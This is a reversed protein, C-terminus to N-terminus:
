SVKIAQKHFGAKRLVRHAYLMVATVIIEGAKAQTYPDVILQVGEWIPTVADMRAGRRVIANQKTSAVEPVHASVRVGATIEGLRDLANRDVSNNRYTAGAHAYSAAGMLIRLGGTGSAYRGDVRGYALGSLFAAFDTATSVDNGALNTGAFLGESGTLVQQDLEDALAMSLNERLSSEMGALRARDERAIFFSGQIRAPSLEFATFAGTSHDQEAGKAPTGATLATTLVTYLREGVSVRPQPIRLFAAAADPFVYPVIPAQTVGVDSPAPTVGTTREELDGALLDLPISDGMLGLEDQLEKTAGETSRQEVAAAFVDAVSAAGILEQKEPDPPEPNLTAEEQALAAARGRAELDAYEATLTDLEARHEESLDEIGSLENLRERVESLRVAIRVAHKM